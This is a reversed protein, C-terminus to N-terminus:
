MIICSGRKRNRSWVYQRPVRDYAKELDIFVTLVTEGQKGMRQPVAFIAGAM